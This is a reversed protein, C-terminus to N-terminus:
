GSVSRLGMGVHSDFEGVRITQSIKKGKVKDLGNCARRPSLLDLAEKVLQIIVMQGVM